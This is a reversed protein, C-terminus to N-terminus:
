IQSPMQLSLFLDTIEPDFQKGRLERLYNAAQDRTWAKRYPRNSLLADWVDAVSFIRAALPIEGGSLGRPYGQGNWWEHHYMPIELAHKLFPINSLMEFAIGPHSKMMTWEVETLSAPKMLISDPIAM